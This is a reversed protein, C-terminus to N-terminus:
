TIIMEQQILNIGLICNEEQLRALSTLSTSNVPKYVSYLSFVLPPGSLSDLYFSAIKNSNNNCSCLTYELKDNPETPLQTGMVKRLPGIKM